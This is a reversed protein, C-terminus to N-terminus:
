VYLEFDDKKLKVAKVRQNVERILLRFKEEASPEEEQDSQSTSKKTSARSKKSKDTSPTSKSAKKQPRLTNLRARKEDIQKTLDSLLAELDDVVQNENKELFEVVNSLTKESLKEPIEKM